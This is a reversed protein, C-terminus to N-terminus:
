NADRLSCGRDRLAYCGVMEFGDEMEVRKEEEEDEQHWWVAANWLHEPASNRESAGPVLDMGLAEYAMEVYASAPIPVDELLPNRGEWESWLYRQWVALDRWLDFRMRDYNFDLARESVAKIEKQKLATRGNESKRAVALLAVNADLGPDAYSSLTADRHVGNLEPRPFRGSRPFLPVELLPLRGVNGARPKAILFAHSWLSPRRDWRLVAQANRVTVGPLNCSGILGIAMLGNGLKRESLVDLATSFFEINDRKAAWESWDGLRSNRNRHHSRRM